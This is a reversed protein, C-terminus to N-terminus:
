SVYYALDKGDMYPELRELRVGFSVLEQNLQMVLLRISVLLLFIWHLHFGHLRRQTSLPPDLIEILPTRNISVRTFRACFNLLWM